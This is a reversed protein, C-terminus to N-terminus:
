INKLTQELLYHSIAFTILIVKKKRQAQVLIIPINIRQFKDYISECLAYSINIDIKSGVPLRKPLVIGAGGVSLNIVSIFLFQCTEYVESVYDVELRDHKRREFIINKDSLKNNAMIMKGQHLHKCIQM